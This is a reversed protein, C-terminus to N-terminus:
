TDDDEESGVAAGAAEGDFTTQVYSGNMKYDESLKLQEKLKEIERQLDMIEAEKKEVCISYSSEYNKLIGRLKTNEAEKEDVKHRISHETEALINRLKDIEASRGELQKITKEYEAIKKAQESEDAPQAKLKEIEEKAIALEIVLDEKESKLKKLEEEDALVKGDSVSITNIEMKTIKGNLEAIQKNAAELKLQASDLEHRLTENAAVETFKETNLQAIIKNASALASKTVELASCGEDYADTLEQERDRHESIQSLLEQERDRHESIQSLLEQERERLGTIETRFADEADNHSALERALTDVREELLEIKGAQEEILAEDQKSRGKELSDGMLLLASLATAEAETINGMKVMVTKITEDFKKAFALVDEQKDTKLFYVRDNVQVRLKEMIFKGKWKNPVDTKEDSRRFRVKKYTCM